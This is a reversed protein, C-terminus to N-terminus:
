QEAKINAARIVKGRKDAEAAILEGFEAPTTSLPEDGPALLQAKIKPDAPGADIAENLKDIIAVPTGRPAGVGLFGGAEYNPVLDSIPPMNMM